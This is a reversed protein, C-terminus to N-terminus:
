LYYVDAPAKLPGDPHRQQMGPVVPSLVVDIFISRYRYRHQKINIHCNSVVLIPCELFEPQETSLMVSCLHMASRSHPFSVYFYLMRNVPVM